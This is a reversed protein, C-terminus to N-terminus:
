ARGGLRETAHRSIEAQEDLWADLAAVDFRINGGIKTVPLLPHKRSIHDYVWAPSVTLYRATQKVTLYTRPM